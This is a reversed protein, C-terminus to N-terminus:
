QTMLQWFFGITWGDLSPIKDKQFSHLITKLEDESVEAMLDSNDEKSIREPFFCSKQIVEAITAQQNAEFLNEFYSKGIEAMGEFTSVPEDNPNRLEWITNQQKRGKSFDQFFKTNDDGCTM